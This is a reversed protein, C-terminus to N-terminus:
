VRYTGFMRDWFTTLVGFNYDKGMTSGNTRHHLLHHRYLGPVLRRALSPDRHILEHLQCYLAYGISSGLMLYLAVDFGTSIALLVLMATHISLGASFPMAHPSFPEVHHLQHGETVLEHLVWRHFVYEALTYSALGALVWLALALADSSVTGQTLGFLMFPVATNCAISLRLNLGDSAKQEMAVNLM